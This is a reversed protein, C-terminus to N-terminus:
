SQRAKIMADALAFSQQAIVDFALPKKADICIDALRPALALMAKAGFYDRLSMGDHSFTPFAADGNMERLCSAVDNPDVAEM